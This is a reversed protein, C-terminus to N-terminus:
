LFVLMSDGFSYFRYNNKQAEQYIIKLRELGILSGTLIFPPAKPLHFNTLFKNFKFKFSYQPHIFLDSIESKPKIAGNKDAASELAKLCTTGVVLIDEQKKKWENIKLSTEESIEYYEPYGTQKTLDKNRLPLISGLGVHLTIFELEIKKKKLKKIVKPTFHLGATPAAISGEKSAYITQYRSIDPPRMRIYHPLPIEGFQKMLERIPIKENIEIIYIGEKIWKILKGEFNGPKFKIIIGEKLHRGEVICEWQNVKIERTLTVKVEGGGQTIKNGQFKAPIVKSNNMIILTNEKLEHNIEHFNRHRFQEGNFILLKSEDRRKLPIQAIFKDEIEYDFDNLM